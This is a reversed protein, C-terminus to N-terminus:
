YRTKGMIGTKSKIKNTGFGSKAGSKRPTKTMDGTARAGRRNNIEKKNVRDQGYMDSGGM